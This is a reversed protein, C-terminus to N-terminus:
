STALPPVASGTPATARAHLSGTYGANGATGVNRGAICTRYVGRRTEDLPWEFAGAIAASGASAPSPLAGVVLGRRLGHGGGVLPARHGGCMETAMARRTAGRTEVIQGLVTEQTENIKEIM